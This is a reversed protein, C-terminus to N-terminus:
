ELQLSTHCLLPLNYLVFWSIAFFGFGGFFISRGLVVVAAIEIFFFFFLLFASWKEDFVCSGRSLLGVWLRMRFGILRSSRVCMSNRGGVRTIVLDWRDIYIYVGSVLRSLSQTYYMAAVKIGNRLHRRRPNSLAPARSNTIAFTSMTARGRTITSNNNRTNRTPAEM